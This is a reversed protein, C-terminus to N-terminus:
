HFHRIVEEVGRRNPCKEAHITFKVPQIPRGHRDKPYTDNEGVIPIHGLALRVDPSISKLFTALLYAEECTLFPSLVGAVASGDRRAAETLERRVAPLVDEYTGPTLAGNGKTQGQVWPRLLRRDSNVY